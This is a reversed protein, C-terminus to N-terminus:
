HTRTPHLFPTSLLQVQGTGEMARERGPHSLWYNRPRSPSGGFCRGLRQSRWARRGECGHLIRRPEELICRLVGASGMAMKASLELFVARVFRPGVTQARHVRDGREG